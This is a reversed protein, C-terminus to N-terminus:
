KSPFPPEHFPLFLSKKRGRRLFFIFFCITKPFTENVLSSKSRTISKSHATVTIATIVALKNRQYFSCILSLQNQNNKASQKNVMPWALPEGQLCRHPPPKTNPPASGAPTSGCFIETSVVRGRAVSAVSAFEESQPNLLNWSPWCM